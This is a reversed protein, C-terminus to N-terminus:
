PAFDPHPPPQTTPEPTASPCAGECCGHRWRWQPCDASREAIAVFARATRQSQPLQIPASEVAMVDEAHVFVEPFVTRAIIASQIRHPQCSYQAMPRHCVNSRVQSRTCVKLRWDGSFTTSRGRCSCNSLSSASWSLMAGESNHSASPTDLCPAMSRSRGSSSAPMISFLPPM